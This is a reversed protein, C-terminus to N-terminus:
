ADKKVKEAKSNRKLARQEAVERSSARVQVTRFLGNPYELTINYLKNIKKQRM